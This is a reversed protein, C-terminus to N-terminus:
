SFMKKWWSKKESHVQELFLVKQQSQQLLIQNNELMRNQDEIQKNKIHIEKQLYEIQKDKDTKLDELNKQLSLIFQNQLPTFDVSDNNYLPETSEQLDFDNFAKCTNSKKISEGILEIGKKDIYKVNNKIKLHKKIEKLTELKNYITMRSIKLEKSVEKVSYYDM